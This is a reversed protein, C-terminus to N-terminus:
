MFPKLVGLASLVYLGISILYLAVTVWGLFLGVGALGRLPRSEGRGVVIAAIAAVLGLPSFWMEPGYALPSLAQSIAALFGSLTFLLLDGPLVLLTFAVLALIGLILAALARAGPTTAPAHTSTMMFGDDGELAM